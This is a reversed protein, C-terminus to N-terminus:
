RQVMLQKLEEFDRKRQKDKEIVLQEITSCRKEIANYKVEIMNKLTQELDQKKDVEYEQALKFNKEMFINNVLKERETLMLGILTKM